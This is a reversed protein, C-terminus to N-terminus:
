DNKSLLYWGLLAFPFHVAWSATAPPLYDAAALAQAISWLGWLTFALISAAPISLALDRSRGHHMALLLPLGLLLLPLGLFSYSIKKHLEVGAQRRRPANEERYAQHWLTSLSRQALAYPPLFFQQPDAELQIEKTPFFTTKLEEEGEQAARQYLNHMTWGNGGWVAAAATLILRPQFHPGWALFTFDRLAPAPNGPQHEGPDAFSYIGDTGRYYIRGGREVGRPKEKKVEQYWIRNIESLTPPVLWQSSALGLLTTALAALLLPATIRRISLGASRLAMLEHHRNLLGLSIVGSLLLSAPMIQEFILPTKLLLYGLAADVGLGSQVFNDAREFFDILLYIALLSGSVLALNKFYLGTLYRDLLLPTQPIKM